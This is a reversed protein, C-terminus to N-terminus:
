VVYALITLEELISLASGPLDKNGIPATWLSRSCPQPPLPFCFALPHGLLPPPSDSISVHANQIGSIKLLDFEFNKQFTLINKSSNCVYWPLRGVKLCRLKILRKMYRFRSITYQLPLPLPLFKFISVYIFPLPDIFAWPHERISVSAWTPSLYTLFQCIIM